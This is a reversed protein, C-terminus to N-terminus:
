SWFNLNALPATPIFPVRLLLMKNAEEHCKAKFFTFYVWQCKRAEEDNRWQIFEGILIVNGSQQRRWQQHELSQQVTQWVRSSQEGLQRNSPPRWLFLNDYSSDM